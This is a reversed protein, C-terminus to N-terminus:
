GEHNLKLKFREVWPTLGGWGNTLYQQILQLSSFIFWYLILGSPFTFGFLITMLPFLYLMQSQMMAAMDDTKEKTGQAVEKETELIPQMMKSSLFQTLAALLLFLGPFSIGQFQFVDPRSLNLYLFDLNIRTESSLRLPSYLVENLGPIVKEGNNGLVQIFVQYLAILVVLQIIQPLCGAAPNIGNKRYLDMQAQAFAQKDKAHKRKLKEIEPGLAAMKRSVELSPRTLPILIIKLMITLLIIAVGLNGFIKYFFILANVLPQFLFFHWIQSM